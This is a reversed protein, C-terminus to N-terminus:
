VPLKRNVLVSWNQQMVPRSASCPPGFFTLRSIKAIVTCVATGIKMIKPVYVGYSIAVPPYITLGGLVTQIVASGQLIKVVVKGMHQYM